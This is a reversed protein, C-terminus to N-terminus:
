FIIYFVIGNSICVQGVNAVSVAIKKLGQVAGVTEMLVRDQPSLIEDSSARM